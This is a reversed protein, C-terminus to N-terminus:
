HWARLLKLAQESELPQKNTNGTLTAGLGVEGMERKNYKTNKVVGLTSLITMQEDARARLDKNLLELANEIQAEKVERPIEFGNEHTAPKFCKVRPFQLDQTPNLRKGYLVLAEIQSLSAGLYSKKEKDTLVGWTVALDDFDPYNNEVYDNAEEITVYSDKGVELLSKKETNDENNETDEIPTEIDDTPTEMEEIPVNELESM